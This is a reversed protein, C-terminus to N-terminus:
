GDGRLRYQLGIAIGGFGGTMFSKPGSNAVTGKYGQDGGLFWDRNVNFSQQFGGYIGAIFWFRDFIEYYYDLRLGTRAIGDFRSVVTSTRQGNLVEDFTGDRRDYIQLLQGSVGVGAFPIAGFSGFRFNYGFDVFGGTSSLEYFANTNAERASINALYSFAFMFNNLLGAIELGSQASHKSFDSVNQSDLVDNMSNVDREAYAGKISFRLDVNMAALPSLVALILLIIFIRM